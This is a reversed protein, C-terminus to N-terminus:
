FLTQNDKQITTIFAHMIEHNYEKNTITAVHIRHGINLGCVYSSAIVSYLLTDTHETAPTYM